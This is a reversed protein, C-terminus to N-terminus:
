GRRVLGSAALEALQAAVTGAVDGEVDHAAALRTAITVSDAAGQGLADLIEPAPSALIHTMGSPRHYVLAMDDLGRMIRASADDAQWIADEM